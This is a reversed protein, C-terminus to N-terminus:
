KSYTKAEESYLAKRGSLVSASGLLILVGAAATSLRDSGTKPLAGLDALPVDPDLVSVTEPGEGSGALRELAQDLQSFVKREGTDTSNMRGEGRKPIQPSPDDNAYIEISASGEWTTSTKAYAKLGGGAFTAAVLCGALLLGFKGRIRVVEKVLNGKTM